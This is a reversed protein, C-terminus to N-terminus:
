GSSAFYAQGGIGDLAKGLRRVRNL